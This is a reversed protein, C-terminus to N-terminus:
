PPHRGPELGANKGTHVRVHCHNFLEEQVTTHAVGSPETKTYIDDLFAFGERLPWCLQTSDWLSCCHCLPPRRSVRRRSRHQPDSWGRRGLPIVISVRLVDFCRGGALCKRWNRRSISNANPSTRVGIERIHRVDTESHSRKYEQHIALQRLLEKGHICIVGINFVHVNGM